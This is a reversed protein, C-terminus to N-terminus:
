AISSGDDEARTDLTIGLEDPYDQMAMPKIATHPIIEIM